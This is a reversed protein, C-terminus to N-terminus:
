DERVRRDREETLEKLIQEAREAAAAPIFSLDFAEFGLRAVLRQLHAPEWPKRRDAELIM